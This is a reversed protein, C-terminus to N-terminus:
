VVPTVAPHTMRGEGTPMSVFVDRGDTLLLRRPLPRLLTLSMGGGTPMLVFVNRGAMVAEIVERQQPRFCPNGFVRVNVFDVLDM